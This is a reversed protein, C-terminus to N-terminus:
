LKMKSSMCNNKQYFLLSSSYYVFCFMRIFMPRGSGGDHTKLTQKTQSHKDSEVMCQRINKQLKTEEITSSSRSRTKKKKRQKRSMVVEACVYTPVYKNIEQKNNQNILTSM